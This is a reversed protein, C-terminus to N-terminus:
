VNLWRHTEKCLATPCPPALRGPFTSREPHGELTEHAVGVSDCDM